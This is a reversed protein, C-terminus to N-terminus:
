VSLSKQRFRKLADWGVMIRREEDYLRMRLSSLSALITMPTVHFLSNERYCEPLKYNPIKPNLHHIHHFGINGTFWQLIGPLKYFSSGEFGAKVFAWKSHREWYTPDFNHQVYFLWVGASTGLLLVPLQVLLYTKWGVLWIMLGILLALALNTWWVSAREKKGDKPRPFRNVVTFVLFSGITFMILPNRFIRYSVKKWWPAALYEKVTMTKVDGVGRRDLDGATAHHIAHDRRWSFYPTFTLIGTITGLLSNAANTKFFSGHGCDHFIIFTRVMFGATPVALLLTLWYSVHVSFLMLAWLAFYPILTNVVQWLSRWLDAQAYRAVIQQWRSTDMETASNSITKM